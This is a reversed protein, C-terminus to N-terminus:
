RCSDERSGFFLPYSFRRPTQNVSQTEVSIYIRNGRSFSRVLCFSFHGSVPFLNEKRLYLCLCVNLCSPFNQSKEEVNEPTTTTPEPFIEPRIEPIHIPSIANLPSSTEREGKYDRGFGSGNHTSPSPPSLLSHCM